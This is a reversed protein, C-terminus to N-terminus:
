RLLPDELRRRAFWALLLVGFSLTALTVGGYILLVRTADASADTTPASPAVEQPPLPATSEDSADQSSRGSTPSASPGAAGYSVDTTKGDESEGVMPAQETAGPAPPSAVDMLTERQTPAVAPTGAMPLGTGVVMVTLGIALAVGAVPRLMTLSPMALRRLLREVTNGRLSEAQEVTLRFNRTRAPTPLTAISTRLLRLDAALRACDTCHELLRRGEEAEGPLSEGVTFRAVLLRDHRSHGPSHGFPRENV